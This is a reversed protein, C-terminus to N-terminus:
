LVLLGGGDALWDGVARYKEKPNRYQAQTLESMICVLHIEYDCEIPYEM